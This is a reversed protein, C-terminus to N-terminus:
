FRHRSALMDIMETVLRDSYNASRLELLDNAAEYSNLYVLHQGIANVHVVEGYQKSWETATLWQEETPIELLNGILPLPKPGPPLPLGSASSSSASILKRLLLLSLLGLVVAIAVSPELFSM